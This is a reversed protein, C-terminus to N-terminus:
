PCDGRPIEDAAVASRPHWCPEPAFVPRAGLLLILTCLKPPRTCPLRQRGRGRADAAADYVTGVECGTPCRATGSIYATGPTGDAPVCALATYSTLTDLATNNASTEFELGALPNGHLRLWHLM